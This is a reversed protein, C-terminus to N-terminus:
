SLVFSRRRCRRVKKGTKPASLLVSLLVSLLTPHSAERGGEMGDEKEEEVGHRERSGLFGICGEKREASSSCINESARVFSSSSSFFHVHM